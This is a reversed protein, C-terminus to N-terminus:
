RISRLALSRTDNADLRPQIAAKGALQHTFENWWARLYRNNSAHETSFIVTLLRVAEGFCKWAVAWSSLHDGNDLPVLVFVLAKLLCKVEKAMDGANGAEVNIGHIAKGDAAGKARSSKRSFHLQYGRIEKQFHGGVELFACDRGGDILLGMPLPLERDMQHRIVQGAPGRQRWGQVQARSHHHRRVQAQKSFHFRTVSV